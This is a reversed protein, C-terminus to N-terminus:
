FLDTLPRRGAFGHHPEHWWALDSEGELWCAMVTRLGGSGDPAVIPIDVLLPAFGKVEVDLSTLEDLLESLRAELAKRDALPAPPRSRAAAVLEARLPILRDAVDRILPVLARAEALTRADDSATGAHEPM